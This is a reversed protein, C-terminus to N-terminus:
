VLMRRGRKSSKGKSIIISQSWKRRNVFASWHLSANFHHTAKMFNVIIM